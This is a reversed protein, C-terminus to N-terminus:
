GLPKILKKTSYFLYYFIKRFPHNEKIVNQYKSILEEM